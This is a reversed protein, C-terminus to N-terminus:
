DHESARFSRKRWQGQAEKVFGQCHVKLIRYYSTMSLSILGEAADDHAAYTNKGSVANALHLNTYTHDIRILTPYFRIKISETKM